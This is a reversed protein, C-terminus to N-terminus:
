FNNSILNPTTASETWKKRKTAQLLSARSDAV